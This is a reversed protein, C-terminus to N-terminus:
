DWDQRSQQEQPFSYRSQKTIGGPDFVFHELYKRDATMIDSLFLAHLYVQCRNLQAIETLNLPHSFIIDMIVQDREQPLPITPFQM